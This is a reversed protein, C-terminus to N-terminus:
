HRPSNAALSAVKVVRVAPASGVLCVSDGVGLHTGNMEQVVAVVNGNDLRVIVQMADRMEKSASNAVREGVLAGVASALSTGQWNTNSNGAVVAGILGGLVGGVARNETPATVEIATAQVDIVVGQTVNLVARGQQSPVSGQGWGMGTQQPQGWGSNGWQAHASGPLMGMMAMAIVAIAGVLAASMPARDQKQFTAFM